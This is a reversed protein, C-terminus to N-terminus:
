TVTASIYMERDLHEPAQERDVVRERKRDAPEGPQGSGLDDREEDHEDDEVRVDHQDHDGQDGEVEGRLGAVSHDPGGGDPVEDGDQPHEEREDPRDPASRGLLGEERPVPSAVSPM